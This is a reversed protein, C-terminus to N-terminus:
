VPSRTRSREPPGAIVTLLTQALQTIQLQHFSAYPPNSVAPKGMAMISPGTTSDGSSAFGWVFPCIFGVRDRPLLWWAGRDRGETEWEHRRRLPASPM